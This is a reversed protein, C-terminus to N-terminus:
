KYRNMSPISGTANEDLQAQLEYLPSLSRNHVLSDQLVISM